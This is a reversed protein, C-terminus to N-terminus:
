AGSESIMVTDRYEGYRLLSLTRRQDADLKRVINEDLYRGILRGLERACFWAQSELWLSHLHRNHRLFLTPFYHNMHPLGLDPCGNSEPVTPRQM